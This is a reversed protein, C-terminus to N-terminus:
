TEHCQFTICFKLSFQSKSQFDCPIQNIKMRCTSLRFIQVQYTGKKSPVYLKLQCTQFNESQHAVKTLLM